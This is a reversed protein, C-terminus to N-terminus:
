DEGNIIATAEEESISLTMALQRAFIGVENEETIINFSVSAEYEDAINIGGFFVPYQTEVYMKNNVNRLQNTASFCSLIYLQEDPKIDSHAEVYKRLTEETYGNFGRNKLGHVTVFMRGYRDRFVIPTTSEMMKLVQLKIREAESPQLSISLHKM